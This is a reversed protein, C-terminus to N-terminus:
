TGVGVEGAHYKRLFIGLLVFLLGFVVVFRVLTTVISGGLEYRFARGDRYEEDLEWGSLRDGVFYVNLFFSVTDPPGAHPVRYRLVHDVRDKLVNPRAGDYELAPAGPFSRSAVFRDAAARVEDEAPRGGAEESRARARAGLVTGDKGVLVYGFEPYKELGKRFYTVRYAGLRPGVVPDRELALRAATDGAVEQEVLLSQEWTEVRFSEGVPIGLRTAEADAVAVAMPRTLALGRPQATEFRPLLAALVAAGLVGLALAYKAKM